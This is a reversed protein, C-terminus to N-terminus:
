FHFRSCPYRLNAQSCLQMDMCTRAFTHLLIRALSLRGPGDTMGCAVFAYSALFPDCGPSPGAPTNYIFVSGDFVPSAFSPMGGMAGPCDLIATEVGSCNLNDLVFPALVEQVKAEIHRSCDQIVPLVAHHTSRM